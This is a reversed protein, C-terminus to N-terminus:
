KISQGTLYDDLNIKQAITDINPNYTKIFKKDPRFKFKDFCGEKTETVKM